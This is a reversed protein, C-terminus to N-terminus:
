FVGVSLHFAGDSENNKPSLKRAYEINLPGVPLNYRLGIGISDRWQMKYPLSPDLNNIYVQGGDYFVGFQWNSKESFPLRLESKILHYYSSDPLRYKAGLVALSPFFESSEFGRITSRGGLVFGKKDFPIGNSNSHQAKIYGGRFSNAWTAKESLPFYFTTQGSFRLYDDVNNSGLIHSAYELSLSSFNGSHPNLINDRYDLDFTPGMSAIVMDRRNYGYKIEDEPTIGEDVYNAINYIQWIATLHSTIDQEVSWIAQNTVTKQRITYDTVLRSTTYNVRFRSRTELLYPELFGVTVKSELFNLIPPNYSADGRLSLGRGWGGLNRYAIGASGHLTYENENTIGVGATILGPNRENVKVVLTRQAVATNSELMNIEVSSFLGTKQLRAISEEIKYPTLLQGPKFELETLIVKDHTMVNGDLLIQSVFIKPGESLVLHIQAETYDDNYVVLDKDNINAIQFEIYGNNLYLERLAILSKELQILNLPQQEKLEMATLITTMSYAQNNEITLGKLQTQPGEEIVLNVFSDQPKKPDIRLNLKRLKANIFGENQLSVMFNKTTQEIDTKNFINNQVKGSAVSMFKKIYDKEPRSIQGTINVKKIKVQPGETLVYNVVQAEIKSNKKNENYKKIDFHFYGNDTYNNKLKDTLDDTFSEDAAFYEPLNLVDEKIYLSSRAKNNFLFLDFAKQQNFKYRIQVQTDDKNYLIEPAPIAVSFLGVQNLETRLKQNLSKLIEDTYIHGTYTWYIKKEIKLLSEQTLGELTVQSIRIKPGTQIDFILNLHGKNDRVVQYTTKSHPYGNKTLYTQIKEIAEQYKEDERDAPVTLQTIELWEESSLLASKKFKIETVKDIREGSIIFRNQDFYVKTQDLTHSEELKKIIQNLEKETLKEQNLEPAIGQMQTKISESWNSLDLPWRTVVNAYTLGHYSFVLGLLFVFFCFPNRRM